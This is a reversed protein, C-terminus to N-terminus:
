LNLVVHLSRAPYTHTEKDTGVSSNHLLDHWFKISGLTTKCTLGESKCYGAPWLWSRQNATALRGAMVLQESKSHPAVLVPNKIAEVVKACSRLWWQQDHYLPKRSLFLSFCHQVNGARTHDSKARETALDHRLM